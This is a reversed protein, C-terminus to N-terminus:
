RNKRFYEKVEKEIEKLEEYAREEQEDMLKINAACKEPEECMPLHSVNTCIKCDCAKGLIGEFYAVMTMTNGSANKPPDDDLWKGCAPCRYNGQAPGCSWCRLDGCYCTM